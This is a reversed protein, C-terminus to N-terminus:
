YLYFYSHKTFSHFLDHEARKSHQARELACLGHVLVVLPLLVPVYLRQAFQAIHDQETVLLSVRQRSIPKQRHKVSSVLRDAPLLLKRLAVVLGVAQAM